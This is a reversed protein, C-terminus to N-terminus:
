VVQWSPRWGRRRCCRCALRERRGSILWRGWCSRSPPASSLAVVAASHRREPGELRLPWPTNARAQPELPWEPARGTGPRPADPGLDRHERRTEPRQMLPIPRSGLVRHGCGAIAAPACLACLLDPRQINCLVTRIGADALVTDFAATFDSGRDRIMFKVRDSTRRPGHPSQSGAPRNM